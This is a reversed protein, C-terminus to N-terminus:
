ARTATRGAFAAVAIAMAVLPSTIALAAAVALAFILRAVFPPAGAGELALLIQTLVARQILMIATSALLALLVASAFRAVGPSPATDLGAPFLRRALVIAPLAAFAWTWDVEDLVFLVVRLTPERAVLEAPALAGTWDQLLFGIAMVAALTVAGAAAVAAALKLAAVGPLWRPTPENAGVSAVIVAIALAGLALYPTIVIVRVAVAFAISARGFGTSALDILALNLDPEVLTLLATLAALIALPRAFSARRHWAIRLTTIAQDM